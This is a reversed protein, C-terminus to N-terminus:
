VHTIWVWDGHGQMRGLCDGRRPQPRCCMHMHVLAFAVCLRLAAVFMPVAILLVDSVTSVAEQFLRLWGVPRFREVRAHCNNMVHSLERPFLEALDM